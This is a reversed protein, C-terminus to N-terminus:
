YDLNFNTNNRKKNKLYQKMKQIVFVKHLCEKDIINKYEEHKNIYLDSYDNFIYKDVKIKCNDILINNNNLQEDLFKNIYAQELMCPIYREKVNKNLDLSAYNYIINNLKNLMLGTSSFFSTQSFNEKVPKKRYGASNYKPNENSSIDYGYSPNLQQDYIWPSIAFVMDNNLIDSVIASYDCDSIFYSDADVFIFKDNLDYNNVKYVDYIYLLKILPFISYPLNIIHYNKIINNYENNESIYEKDSIINIDIDFKIDFKLLEKQLVNFISNILDNLYVNYVGTAITIIHLKM